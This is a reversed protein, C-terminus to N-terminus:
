VGVVRKAAVSAIECGAFVFRADLAASMGPDSTTWSLGLAHSGSGLTLSPRTIVGQRRTPEVCPQDERM